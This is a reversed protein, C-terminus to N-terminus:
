SATIKPETAYQEKQSFLRHNSLERLFSTILQKLQQPTVTGVRLTAPVAQVKTLAESTYNLNRFQATQKRLFLLIFSKTYSNNIGNGRGLKPRM